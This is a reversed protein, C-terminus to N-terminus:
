TESSRSSSPTAKHAMSIGCIYLYLKHHGLGTMYNVNGPLSQRVTGLAGGPWHACVSERHHLVGPAAPLLTGSQRPLMIGARSRQMAVEAHGLPLQLFSRSKVSGRSECIM